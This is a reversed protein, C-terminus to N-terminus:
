AEWVHHHPVRVEPVMNGLYARVLNGQDHTKGYGCVGLVSTPGLYHTVETVARIMM